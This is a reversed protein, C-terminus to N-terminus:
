RRGRRVVKARQRATLPRPNDQIFRAYSQLSIEWDPAKSAYVLGYRANVVRVEQGPMLVAPRAAPITVGLLTVDQAAMLFALPPQHIMATGEQINRRSYARDSRTEAADDRRKRSM